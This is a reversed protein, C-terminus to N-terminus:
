RTLDASRQALQGGRLAVRARRKGAALKKDKALLAVQTEHLASETEVLQERLEDVDGVTAVNYAHAGGGLQRSATPAVM